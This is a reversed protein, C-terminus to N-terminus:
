NSDVALLLDTTPEREIRRPLHRNVWSESDVSSHRFAESMM